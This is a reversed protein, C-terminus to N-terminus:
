HMQKNVEAQNTRALKIRNIAESILKEPHSSNKDAQNYFRDAKDFDGSIEACIGLNYALAPSGTDGALTERFMECARDMRNQEVFALASKIKEKTAKGMVNDKEMFEITVTVTYPAVDKRLNALTSNIALNLLETDSALKGGNLRECRSSSSSGSYMKTFLINGKQVSVAKLNFDINAGRELCNYAVKQKLVCQTSFASVNKPKACIEEEEQYRRQTTPPIKVVGMILTDAGALNGLKVAEKEDFLGTSSVMKQEAVIKALMERELVQFYPAGRVKINAMYSEVQATFMGDKDGNINFIALKKTGIMGSEHAPMEIEKSVKPTSCASLTTLVLALIALKFKKTIM